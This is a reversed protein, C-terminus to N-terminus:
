LTRGERAGYPACTVAEDRIRPACIFDQHRKGARIRRLATLEAHLTVPRANTCSLGTM